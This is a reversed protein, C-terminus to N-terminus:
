LHRSTDPKQESCFPLQLLCKLVTITSQLWPGSSSEQHGTSSAASPIFLRRPGTHFRNYLRHFLSADLLPCPQPLFSNFSGGPTQVLCRSSLAVPPVVQSSLIQCTLSFCHAVEERLHWSIEAPAYLPGYVPHLGSCRTGPCSGPESFCLWELGSASTPLTCVPLRSVPVEDVSSRSSGILVGKLWPPSPQM